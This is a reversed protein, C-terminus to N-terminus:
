ERGAQIRSAAFAIGAYILTCGLFVILSIGLIGAPLGGSAAPMDTVRNAGFFFVFAPLLRVFGTMQVSEFRFMTCVLEEIAAFLFAIGTLMICMGTLSKSGIFPVPIEPRILHSILISLIGGLAAILIAAYGFLFHGLIPEGPKSPLMQLFGSESKLESNFPLVAVFIGAFLCYAFAFVPDADGDWVTMVIALVPFIALFGYRKIKYCDTLFYNYIRM